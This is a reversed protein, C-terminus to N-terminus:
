LPSASSSHALSKNGCLGQLQLTGWSLLIQRTGEYTLCFHHKKEQYEVVFVCGIMSPSYNKYIFYANITIEVM